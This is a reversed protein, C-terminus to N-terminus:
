SPERRPQTASAPQDHPTLTRDYAAFAAAREQVLDRRAAHSRATQLIEDYHAAKEAMSIVSTSLDTWSVQLDPELVGRAGCTACTVDRGDLEVTSLHCMPCLGEDGLYEVEDFPRGMQSAVRRGLLRARDLAAEDLVISQPTGTGSVVLQDVVATQMSFTMTHLEPMVLTKWQPTLSGGVAIFGAVRDKLVREDLRFPMAPQEGAAQLALMKEVIARDANPGLLRDMVVKLSAPVCRSFIPASVVLADADLIRDWLWWVDDPAGDQPSVPLALDDLRVLDVPTGGEEVAQLAVELAIEASGHRAGASIGLLRSATM